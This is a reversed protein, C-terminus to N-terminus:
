KADELALADSLISNNELTDHLESARWQRLWEDSSVGHVKMFTARAEELSPRRRVEFSADRAFSALSPAEALADEGSGGQLLLLLFTAKVDQFHDRNRDFFTVAASPDDPDVIVLADREVLDLAEEGSHVELTPRPAALASLRSILDAKETHDPYFGIGLPEGWELLGAPGAVDDAIEDPM